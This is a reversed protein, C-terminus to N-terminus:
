RQLESEIIRVFEEPKELSMMHGAGPIVIHRSGQIQSQLYDGYKVPTLRDEAGSLILAKCQIRSVSKMRDFSDCACFDAHVVAPPTNLFGNRLNQYLEPRTDAGASLGCILDVTAEYDLLVGTLIEPLVRLRAGTGVLIVGSLWAPHRLALTQAIAGGLSHGMLTVEHLGLTEIFGEMVDAYGEVGTRPSGGSRGHSPLDVAVTAASTIRHLEPPWHSQDGGSGHVCVLASSAKVKNATFHLSEGGVTVLAM